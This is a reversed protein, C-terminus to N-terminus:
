LYQWANGFVAWTEKKTEVSPLSGPRINIGGIQAFNRGFALAASLNAGGPKGNLDYRFDASSIWSTGQGFDDFGSTTSADTLNMLISSVTVNASPM